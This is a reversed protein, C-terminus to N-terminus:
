LTIVDLHSLVRGELQSGWYWCIVLVYMYSTSNFYTPYQVNPCLLSPFCLDKNQLNNLSPSINPSLNQPNNATLTQKYNLCKNAKEM